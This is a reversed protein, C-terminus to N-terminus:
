LQLLGGVKISTRLQGVARRQMWSWAISGVVLRGMGRGYGIRDVFDFGSGVFGLMGGEAVFLIRGVGVVGVDLNLNTSPGEKDRDVVLDLVLVPVPVPIRYILNDGGLMM